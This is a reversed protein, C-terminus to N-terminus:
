TVPGVMRGLSDFVQASGDKPLAKAGASTAAAIAAYFADMQNDFPGVRGQKGFVAWQGFFPAVPTAPIAAPNAVMGAGWSSPGLVLPIQGLWPGRSNM